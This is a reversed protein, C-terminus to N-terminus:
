EVVGTERMVTLVRAIERKVRSLNGSKKQIRGTAVMGKLRALEGRLEFLRDKLQDPDQGRLTKAKLSPM